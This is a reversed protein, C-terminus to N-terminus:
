GLLASGTLWRLTGAPRNSIRRKGSKSAPDLKSGGSVFPLRSERQQTKRGARTAGRYFILIFTLFDGVVIGRAELPNVSISSRTTMAIMAMRAAISRGASAFALARAFWTFHKLLTLCIVSAM